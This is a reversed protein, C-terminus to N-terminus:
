APINGDNRVPPTGGSSNLQILQAAKTMADFDSTSAAIRNSLWYDGPSIAKIDQRLTEIDGKLDSWYSMLDHSADKASACASDLKGVQGIAVRVVGYMQEAQSKNTILRAVAQKKADFDASAAAIAGVGAITTAVGGIIADQTAGGTEFYGAAAVTIIVVGAVTGICGFTIAAVDKSMGSEIEQISSDLTAISGSKGGYFSRLSNLEEDLQHNTNTVTQQFTALKDCSQQISQYRTNVNTYIQGLMMDLNKRADNRTADNSQSAAIQQAYSQMTAAYNTWQTGFSIVDSVTRNCDPGVTADWFDANARAEKQIDPLRPAKGGADIDGQTRVAALYTQVVTSDTVSKHVSQKLNQAHESLNTAQKSM